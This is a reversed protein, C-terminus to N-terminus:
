AALFSIKEIDEVVILSEPLGWFLKFLVIWILTVFESGILHMLEYPYPSFDNLDPGHVMSSWIPCHLSGYPVM